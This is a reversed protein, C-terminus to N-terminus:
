PSRQGPTSLVVTRTLTCLLQHGAQRFENPFDLLTKLDAWSATVRSLIVQGHRAFLPLIKSQVPPNGTYFPHKCEEIGCCTVLAGFTTRLPVPGAHIRAANADILQMNEGTAFMSLLVSQLELNPVYLSPDMAAIALQEDRHIKYFVWDVSYQLRHRADGTVSPTGKELEKPPHM